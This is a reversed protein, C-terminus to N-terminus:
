ILNNSEAFNPKIVQIKIVLLTIFCLVYIIICTKSVDAGNRGVEGQPGEDGQVFMYQSTVSTKNMIHSLTVYCLMFIQMANGCRVLHTYVTITNSKGSLDTPSCVKQM